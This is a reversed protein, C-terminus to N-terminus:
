GIRTSAGRRWSAFSISPMPVYNRSARTMPEAAATPGAFFRRLVRVFFRRSTPFKGAVLADEYRLLPGPPDEYLILELVVKKGNLLLDFAREITAQQV